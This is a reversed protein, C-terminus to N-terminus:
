GCTLCVLLGADEVVEAREVAACGTQSMRSLITSHLSLDIHVPVADKYERRTAAVAADVMGVIPVNLEAAIGLLLGLNDNNMYAPVAVVLRDGKQGAAQWMQELQRSVLIPVVSINFGCIRFRSQRCSPGFGTKFVDRDSAPM